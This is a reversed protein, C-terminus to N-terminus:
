IQYPKLDFTDKERWGSELVGQVYEVSKIYFDSLEDLTNFKYYAPEEDTGFKFTVPLTAGATQVSLDYAAKYNFQNETSLWVPFDKWVFEKKIKSDIQSNFYSMILEKIETLIPKHTFEEEMYSVGGKQKGQEDLEQNQQVDWRIRWKNSYPNVCEILAVGSSGQVRNM